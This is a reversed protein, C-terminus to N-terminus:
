QTSTKFNIYNEKPILCPEINELFPKWLPFVEQKHSFAMKDEKQKLPMEYKQYPLSKQKRKINNLTIQPDYASKDKIMRFLIDSLRRELRKLAENKSLGRKISNQYFEKSLPHCRIATLALQRFSRKLRRNCFKNASHKSRGGTSNERPATGNFCAFSSSKPFRDPSLTEGLFVGALTTNIGKLTQLQQGTSKILIELKEEVAKISEITQKLSLTLQKIIEAQMQNEASLYREKIPSYKELIFAAKRKYSLGKGRHNSSAKSLLNTIKTISSGVLFEPLPYHYFFEIAHNSFIRPFLEKYAGSWTKTLQAHLRNIIQTKNKVLTERFRSAERIHSYLQNQPTIKPLKDYLRLTISACCKADIADSKDQGYFDKQRNTKLPNIELVIREEELLYKKLFSGYSGSDELGYVVTLNKEEALRSVQQDLQKIEQFNNKFSKSMLIVEPYIMAVLYHTQKAPDIGVALIKTPEM